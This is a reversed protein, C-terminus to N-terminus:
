RAPRPSPSRPPSSLLPVARGRSAQWTASCRCQATRRWRAAWPAALSSWRPYAAPAAPCPLQKLVPRALRLLRCCGMARTLRPQAAPLCAAGGLLGVFCPQWLNLGSPWNLHLRPTGCGHPTLTLAGCCTSWRRRWMWSCARCILLGTPMQNTLAQLRLLLNSHLPGVPLTRQDGSALRCHAGSRGGLRGGRGACACVRETPSGESRGYGRYSFIFASCDLIRTLPKLFPLRCALPHPAARPAAAPNPRLNAGSARAPAGLFHCARGRSLAQQRSGAVAWFVRLERRWSVAVGGAAWARGSLLPTLGASAERKNGGGRGTCRFAMNGANEQCFLVTPRRRREEASWHRPWMLWAHLRLGDRTTQGVPRCSHRRRTQAVRQRGPQM